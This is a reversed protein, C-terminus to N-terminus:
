LQENQNFFNSYKEKLEKLDFDKFFEISGTDAEQRSKKHIAKAEEETFERLMKSSNESFSFLYYQSLVKVIPLSSTKSVSIREIIEIVKTQKNTYQNLYKLIVNVLWIVVILAIISRLVYLFDM